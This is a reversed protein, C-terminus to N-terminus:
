LSQNHEAARGPADAYYRTIFPYLQEGATEKPLLADAGAEHMAHTMQASSAVSLGIVAIEPWAQKIRRTAEVGNLKPMNIDMLILDPHYQEAMDVAEEGDSAEAIVEMDPYIALLEKLGQRVAPHDDVLM